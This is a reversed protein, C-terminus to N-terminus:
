AEREGRLINAANAPLLQANRRELGLSARLDDAAQAAAIESVFSGGRHERGNHRVTVYYKNTSKDFCM